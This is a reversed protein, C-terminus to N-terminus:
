TNVIIGGKKLKDIFRLHNYYVEKNDNIDPIANYYRVQKLALNFKKCIFEALLNFDVKESDNVVSKSNHYFNSGDIFLIADRKKM